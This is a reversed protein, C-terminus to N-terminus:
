GLAGERLKEIYDTIELGETFDKDEIDRITMKRPTIPMISIVHVRIIVGQQNFLIKGRLRVRRREWVDRFDMVRTIKDILSQDVRCVIENGTKREIIRIAPQNYDAGVDVLIGEVSGHETRQRAAPLYDFEPREDRAATDLAVAAITPTVVVDAVKPNDFTIITKGIGATNRRFFKKAAKQRRQGLQRHPTEGRGLAAMYESAEMIRATAVARVDVGPTTSVAEAEAHFPSNKTAFTLNWVLNDRDEDGTLLDFFDLVQQMADRIDLVDPCDAPAQVTIKAKAM